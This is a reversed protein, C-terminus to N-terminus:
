RSARSCVARTGATRPVPRVNCRSAIILEVVPLSPKRSYAFGQSEREHLHVRDDAVEVPVPAPDELTEVLRAGAAGVEDEERLEGDRAVRRLIEEQSGAEDTGGLRAQVLEGGGCAAQDREDAEGVEVAVEVVRAGDARVALHLRDVVLPEQGVVADEVLVAVERRAVVQDQQPDALRGDPTVTHSSTQCGPGGAVSRARAPASSIAFM